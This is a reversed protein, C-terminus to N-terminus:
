TIPVDFKKLLKELKFPFESNHWESQVKIKRIQQAYILIDNVSYKKLMDHKKLNLYIRYYFVLALYNIFSWAEMQETGQMYTKDAHILNKYADFAQEVSARTKYNEYIEKPVVKKINTAIALTGFSFQKEYFNEQTYDEYKNEIRLLYDKQEKYAAQEDLYLIITQDGKKRSYYWIPRENFIFYGDLNKKDSTKLRNYRILQNNRKLPLIYSLKESQLEKVNDDSYFGKDGIIVIKKLGSEKISLKMAKIERINGPILRYYVPIQKDTSFIYFLNVQPDFDFNNNYGKKSIDINNSLSTVHTTDMLIFESGSSVSRLFAAIKERQGGISRMWETCSSDSLHAGPFFDSIYGHDYYHKWLKVPSHYIFRIMSSCIIEKWKEPFYKKLSEIVDANLAKVLQYSGYDKVSLTKLQARLQEVKPKILGTETITGLFQLTVKQARKKEPNWKSTVKYLRYQGGLFRVETGREKHKLVWSPLEKM